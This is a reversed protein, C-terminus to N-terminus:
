LTGPEPLANQGVVYFEADIIDEENINFKKHTKSDEKQKSSSKQQNMYQEIAQRQVNQVYEAYQRQSDDYIGFAGFPSGSGFLNGFIGM